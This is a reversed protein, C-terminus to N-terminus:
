LIKPTVFIILENRADLFNDSRFFRGLIPMRGLFPVINQGRTESKNFIGGIVVTEGNKLLVQTNISTTDIAFTSGIPEGLSDNNIVLELAIRNDPTIQPTAELKLVARKFSAAAAGSSTAEAFPIELGQEISATSQDSTVIRPRAVIHTRAERELAQLELDLLTGGPLRSLSIGIPSTSVGTTLTNQALDVFLAGARAAALEGSPDAGASAISSAASGSSAVGLRRSGIKATAAGGWRIGLASELNETTRVFHTSIEVQKVPIDLREIVARVEAIKSETDSLLLTNTRSDSTAVGRESLIGNGSTLISIIDDARSYKLQFYESKVPALTTSQVRAELEAIEQEAIEAIPAILLVDGTQRKALNKSKLITDLAQDWPINNLRLTINGQVSDSTIINLNTFEAFIQLVSRIEIDQFNLSLREGTFEFRKSKLTEKEDKTVPIVELIFKNDVQYATKEYEGVINAKFTIGDGDQIGTIDLVPTGFDSVDFKHLVDSSATAAVFKIELNPGDTVLDIPASDESLTLFLKAEGNSGRRFDLSDINTTVKSDVVVDQKTSTTAIASINKALTIIMTNNHYDIMHPLIEDVDIILRTQQNNDLLRYDRLSSADIFKSLKETEAALKVGPFDFIMKNPTNISFYKPPKPSVDFDLYFEITENNSQINIDQLSIAFAQPALCLMSMFLLQLLKM